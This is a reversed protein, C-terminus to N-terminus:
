RRQLGAAPQLNAAWLAPYAAGLLGMAFALLCGYGVVQLPPWGALFGALTSWASLLRVTVCGLLSGAVASGGALLAAELLIMAVIRYRRWGIARLVSIEASREFVAMIMTNLIGIAGIAAVIVSVIWAAARIVRFQSVNHVFERVPVVSINEDLHEIRNRLEAVAMPNGTQTAQVVYGTVQNPRDMLRQLEELLIFIAGAEYVSFSNFIGVVEFEDGYFEIKDGVRKGTNSALVKGLMVKGGDGPRLRRGSVLTVRDLVPCDANWGNVIVAVMDFQELAVMDMLGGIVQRVGPLAAIRPGLHTSLGSNLQMMGGAHQVVLDAGRADYLRLFSKEVCRSVGSLAVVAAIAITLGVTTLITRAPRRLLNKCVIQWFRM